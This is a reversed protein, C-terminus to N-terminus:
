DDILDFNIFNCKAILLASKHTINSNIDGGKSELMDLKNNGKGDSWLTFIEVSKGPFVLLFTADFSGKRVVFFSGGTQVMSILKKRIDVVVLDYANSGTRIISIIGNSIGDKVFESQIKGDVNYHYYSFGEPNKCDAITQSFAFSSLFFSLSIFLKNKLNM